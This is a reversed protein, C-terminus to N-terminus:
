KLSPLCPAGRSQISPPNRGIIKRLPFPPRTLREGGDTLSVQSPHSTDRPASALPQHFSHSHFHAFVPGAALPQKGSGLCRSACCSGQGCGAQLLASSHTTLPHALPHGTHLVNSGSSARCRLAHHVGTLPVQPQTKPPLSNPFSRPCPPPAVSYRNTITHPFLMALTMRRGDVM